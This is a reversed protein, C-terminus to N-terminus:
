LKSKIEVLVRSCISRSLVNREFGGLHLLNLRGTNFEIRVRYTLWSIKAM